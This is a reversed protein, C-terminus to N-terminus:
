STVRTLLPAGTLHWEALMVTTVVLVTAIGASLVAGRVTAARTGLRPGAPLVGVLFAPLLPFAYRPNVADIRPALYANWNTYAIVLVALGITLSVALLCGRTARDLPPTSSPRAQRAALAVLALCAIVLWAPMLWSGMGGALERFGDWGGDWFTRAVVTVFSVPHTLLHSLQRGPDLDHFAYGSAGSLWRRPDDQPISHTSQYAAWLTALAGTTGIVALVPKALRQRNRWAPVVLLLLLAMYPPKGLALVVGAAGVEVLDRRKTAEPFATMRLASATVFFSLAITLSDANVTAGQGLVAPLLGCIAFVWPHWPTRRIAAAVLLVYALLGLLRALYLRVLTSTGLVRGIEIGVIHPVFAGPGYSASNNLDVFVQRGSPAPDGLHDLFASRDRDVYAVDALTQLDKALGRSFMAGYGTAGTPNRVTFPQGLAIQYARAFHDREDGGAEPQTIAVVCLGFVLALVLFVRDPRLWRPGVPEELLPTAPPGTPEVHDAPEFETRTKAM